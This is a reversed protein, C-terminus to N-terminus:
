SRSRSRIRGQRCYPAAGANSAIARRCGKFAELTETRRIIPCYDGRGLLNDRVRHRKSLHPAGTFYATPDLADAATVTKADEIDLTRGTPAAKPESAERSTAKPL